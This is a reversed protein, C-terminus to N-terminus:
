LLYCRPVALCLTITHFLVCNTLLMMATLPLISTDLEFHWMRDIVMYPIGPPLDHPM